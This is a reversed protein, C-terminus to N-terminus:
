ARIISCLIAHPDNTDNISQLRLSHATSYRTRSHDKVTRQPDVPQVCHFRSASHSRSHPAPTSIHDASLSYSMPQGTVLRREFGESCRSMRTPILSVTSANRDSRVRGRNPCSSPRITRIPREVMRTAAAIDASLVHEQQLIRSSGSNSRLKPPSPLICSLAFRRWKVRQCPLLLAAVSFPIFAQFSLEGLLFLSKWKWVARWKSGARRQPGVVALERQV